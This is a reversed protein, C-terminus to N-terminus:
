LIKILNIVQVMRKLFVYHREDHSKREASEVAQFLPAMMDTKFLVLLQARDPLKGVKWGVISLLCEAAHLQMKEDSLLHCLCRVLYHDNAMIHAMPVWEVFANFTALVSQCVKSHRHRVDEATTSLYAQYHRELLTLLFCFIADMQSVLAQYIEKRRQNQELTQLVAVDEVIRLMVFMVLETQADGKSCLVELEALLNPWQQPWERKIIEVVIRSIGDKVHVAESILDAVGSEMLRMANEKMYLKQDPPMENWRLKITDELLKLGFHRVMVDNKSQCLLLGCQISVEPPSQEKFNECHTFAEMRVAQPSMPNLMAEVARVLGQCIAGIDAM